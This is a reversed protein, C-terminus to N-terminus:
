IVIIFSWILFLVFIGPVLDTSSDLISPDNFEFVTKNMRLLHKIGHINLSTFFYDHEDYNFIQIEVPRKENGELELYKITTLFMKVQDKTIIKM